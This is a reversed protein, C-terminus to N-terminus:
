YKATKTHQLPMGRMGAAVRVFIKCECKLRRINPLFILLNNVTKFKAFFLPVPLPQFSIKAKVNSDVHLLNVLFIQKVNTVMKTISAFHFAYRTWTPFPWSQQQHERNSLVSSQGCGRGRGKVYCFMFLQRSFFNLFPLCPFYRHFVKLHYSCFFDEREKDREGM